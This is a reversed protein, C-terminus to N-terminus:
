WSRMATPPRAGVSINVVNDNHQLQPIEITGQVTQDATIKNRALDKLDGENIYWDDTEESHYHCRRAVLVYPLMTDVSEFSVPGEPNIVIYPSM